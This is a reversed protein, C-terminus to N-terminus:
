VHYMSLNSGCCAVTIDNEVGFYTQYQLCSKESELVIVKGISSINKKSNNLNFLNMGLPHNYQKRDVMLPRYKGYREAEELNL